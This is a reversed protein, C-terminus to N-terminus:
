KERSGCARSAHLTGKTGFGFGARLAEVECASVQVPRLGSGILTVRERRIKDASVVDKDSQSYNSLM